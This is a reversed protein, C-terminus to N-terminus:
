SSFIVVGPTKSATDLDVGFLSDIKMTNYKYNNVGVGSGNVRYMLQSIGTNTYVPGVVYYQTIGGSKREVLDYAKSNFQISQNSGSARLLRQWIIGGNIAKVKLLLMNIMTKAGVPSFNSHGCIVLENDNTFKISEFQDDPALKYINSWLLNGDSNLSFVLGNIDNSTTFRDQHTGAVYINGTKPDECFSRAFSIASVGNASTADFNYTGGWIFGTNPLFRAVFCSVNKTISDISHGCVIFTGPLFDSRKVCWATDASNGFDITVAKSLTGNSNIRAFMADSGGRIKANTALNDAVAGVIIYGGNGKSNKIEAISNGSAHYTTTNGINKDFFEYGNNFAVSNGEKSTKVFRLRNSFQAKGFTRNFFSTGVSCFFTSDPISDYNAVSKLGSNFVEDRLKPTTLDFNFYRQFYQANSFYSCICLLCIIFLKM